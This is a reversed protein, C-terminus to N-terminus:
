KGNYEGLMLAGCNPCFNTRGDNAIECVSCRYPLFHDGTMEWEGQVLGKSDGEPIAKVFGEVMDLTTMAADFAMRPLEEKKEEFQGRFAKIGILIFEKKDNGGEVIVLLCLAWMVAPTQLLLAVAAVVATYYLKWVMDKM